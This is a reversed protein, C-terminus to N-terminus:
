TTMDKQEEHFRLLSTVKITSNTEKKYIEM